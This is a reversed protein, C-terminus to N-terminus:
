RKYDTYTVLVLTKAAPDSLRITPVRELYTQKMTPAVLPQRHMEVRRSSMKLPKLVFEVDAYVKRGRSLSFHLLM